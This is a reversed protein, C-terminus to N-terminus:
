RTASNIILNVYGDLQNILMFFGMIVVCERVRGRIRTGRRREQIVARKLLGTGGEGELMDLISVRLIVKNEIVRRIGM